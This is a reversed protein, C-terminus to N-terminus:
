RGRRCHIEREVVKRELKLALNKENCRMCIATVTDAKCKNSMTKM